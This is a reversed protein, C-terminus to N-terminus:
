RLIQMSYRVRMGQHFCSYLRPQQQSSVDEKWGTEWLNAAISFDGANLGVVANRGCNQGAMPQKNKSESKAVLNGDSRLTQRYLHLQAERIKVCHTSSCANLANRRKASQRSKSPVLKRALMRLEMSSKKRTELQDALM